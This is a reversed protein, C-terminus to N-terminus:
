ARRLLKATAAVLEFAKEPEGAAIPGTVASGIVLADAHPALQAAAEPSAIGFGAAVPLPASLKRMADLRAPLEPPLEKRAGTVGCVTIYYVFGGCGSIVQKAREPPTAPSLLPIIAVGSQAVPALEAREELPLDVALVGDIGLRPLEEALLNVGHNFLVNYYSFLIFPTEPHRERLRGALSLIKKLTAGNRLAIQGANQIVPGDAMPDSFPVGLEIIDAGAEILRDIDRESAELTPCGITHYIVLAPRNERRCTEFTNKLRDKM